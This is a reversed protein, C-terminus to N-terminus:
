FQRSILFESDCFSYQVTEFQVVIYLNNHRLKQFVADCGFRPQDRGCESFGITQGMSGIGGSSQFRNLDLFTHQRAGSSMNLPKNQSCLARAGKQPTHAQGLNHAM